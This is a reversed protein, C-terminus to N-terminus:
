KKKVSPTIEKPSVLGAAVMLRMWLRKVSTMCLPDSLDSSFLWEGAAGVKRKLMSILPRPLLIFRDAADTKLDSIITKGRVYVIDRQIHVM